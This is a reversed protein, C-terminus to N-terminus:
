RPPLQASSPVTTKVVTPQAPPDAPAPWMLTAFVVAATAVLPYSMRATTDVFGVWNSVRHVVKARRTPPETWLSLMTPATWSDYMTLSTM